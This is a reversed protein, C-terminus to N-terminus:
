TTRKSYHICEIDLVCKLGVGILFLCVTAVKQAAWSHLVRVPRHRTRIQGLDAWETFSPNCPDNYLVSRVIRIPPPSPAGTCQALGIVSQVDVFGETSNQAGPFSLKLEYMAALLCIGSPVCFSM